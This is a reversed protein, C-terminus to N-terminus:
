LPDFRKRILIGLLDFGGLLIGDYVKGCLIFNGEARERGVLCCWFEAM